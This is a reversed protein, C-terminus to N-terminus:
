SHAVELLAPLRRDLMAAVLLSPNVSQDGLCPPRPAKLVCPKSITAKYLLGCLVPNAQLWYDHGLRELCREEPSRKIRKDKEAREREQELCREWEENGDVLNVGDLLGLRSLNGIVRKFADFRGGENKVTELYCGWVMDYTVPQCAYVYCLCRAVVHTHWDGFLWKGALALREVMEYKNLGLERYSYVRVRGGM